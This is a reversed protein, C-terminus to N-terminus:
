QEDKVVLEAPDDLGFGAGYDELFKASKDKASSAVSAQVLSGPADSDLRVFDPVGTAKNTKVKIQGHTQQKLRGLAQKRDREGRQALSTPSFVSLQLSFMALLILSLACFIIHRKM